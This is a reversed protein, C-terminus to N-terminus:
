VSWKLRDPAEPMFDRWRRLVGTIDDGVCLGEAWVVSTVPHLKVECETVWGFNGGGGRLAWFLEANETADAHVVSGDATVVTFGEVNDCSLGHLRTLWGFGGGLVLGAAGTHSVVGSPFALGYKQTAAD